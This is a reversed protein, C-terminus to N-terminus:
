YLLAYSRWVLNERDKDSEQRLLRWTKGEKQRQLYLDFENNNQKVDQNPLELTLNFKGHLHYTPLKGMFLPDLQDVKIQNIEIQPHAAMLEESLRKEFRTLQLILAQKVLDGDPAFERPPTAGACGTLLIILVFALLQRMIKLYKM